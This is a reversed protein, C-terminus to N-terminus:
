HNLIYIGKCVGIGTGAYRPLIYIPMALLSIYAKAYLSVPMALLFIYPYLLQSYIYAYRILIYINECLGISSGDLFLEQVLFCRYDPILILLLKVYSIASLEKSSSLDVESLSVQITKCKKVKQKERYRKGPSLSSVPQVETISTKSFLALFCLQNIPQEVTAFYLSLSESCNKTFVRLM